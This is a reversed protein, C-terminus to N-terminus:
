KSPLGIFRWRTSVTVTIEQESPAIETAAPAPAAKMAMFDMQPRERNSPETVGAEILQGLRGGAAKAMILADKRAHEVASALAQERLFDYRSSSFSINQIEDAGGQVTADIARGIGELRRIKVMIVHRATYGKLVSRGASTDWEWRPSVTYSSTPADDSPIGAIRLADQVTRYKVASEAAAREATKADSKVVAGFEATDPRVSVKGVANVVVQSEEAGAHLSFCSMCFVLISTVLLHNM